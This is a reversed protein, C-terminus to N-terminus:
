LAKIKKIYILLISLIQSFSLNTPLRCDETLLLSNSNLTSDLKNESKVDTM